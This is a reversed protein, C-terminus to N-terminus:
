SKLDEVECFIWEEGSKGGFGNVEEDFLIFRLYIFLSWPCEEFSKESGLKDNELRRVIRV